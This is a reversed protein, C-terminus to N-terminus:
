HHHPRSSSSSSSSSLVMTVITVILALAARSQVQVSAGRQVSVCEGGGGPGWIHLPLGDSMLSSPPPPLLRCATMHQTAKKSDKCCDAGVWPQCDITSAGGGGEGPPLGSHHGVGSWDSMLTPSSRIEVLQLWQQQGGGGWFCLLFQFTFIITAPPATTAALHCCYAGKGPHSM